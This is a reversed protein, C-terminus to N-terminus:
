AKIEIKNENKETLNSGLYKFETVRDFQYQNVTFCTIDSYRHEKRSNIIYKTEKLNLIVGTRCAAVEL